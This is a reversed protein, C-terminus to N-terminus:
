LPISLWTRKASLDVFLPSEPPLVTFLLIMGGLLAVMVWLGESWWGKGALGRFLRPLLFGMGMMVVYLGIDFVMSEGGFVFHYWYAIGLMTVCIVLLSMLWPARCGREGGRTLVLLAVLFPWYALKVHEWLSEQVPSFIATLLNPFLGYVFHLLVGALVSIVFAAAIRKSLTKM